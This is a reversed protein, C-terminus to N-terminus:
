TASIRKSLFDSAPSILNTSTSPCPCAWKRPAGSANTRCTTSALQTGAHAGCDTQRGTVRRQRAPPPKSFGIRGCAIRKLPVAIPHNVGGGKSAQDVLGLHEQVVFAIQKAGPQRMRKLHSLQAAANGPGQPQILVQHLRHRQGVIQSVGREPMGALIRQGIAHRLRLRTQGSCRQQGAIDHAPTKLVVQLAQAHHIRQFLTVRGKISQVQTKFGAFANQFMARPHSCLADFRQLGHTHSGPKQRPPRRRKLRLQAVQSVLDGVVRVIHVVAHARTQQGQLLHGLHGHHPMKQRLGQLLM